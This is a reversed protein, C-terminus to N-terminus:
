DCDSRDDFAMGLSLDSLMRTCFALDGSDYHALREVVVDRLREIFRQYAGLGLPSLTLEQKRGDEASKRREILGAQMLRELEITMLSRGIRLVDTVDSPHVTGRQILGIIWPGRQGIGYEEALRRTVNRIERQAAYIAQCFAGLEERSLQSLASAPAAKTPDASLSSHQPM